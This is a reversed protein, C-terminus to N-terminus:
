KCTYNPLPLPIHETSNIIRGDVKIFLLSDYKLTGDKIPIRTMIKGLSQVTFANYPKVDPLLYHGFDMCHYHIVELVFRVSRPAIKAM